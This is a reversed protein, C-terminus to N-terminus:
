CKPWYSLKLKKNIRQGCLIVKNKYELMVKGLFRLDSTRNSPFLLKPGVM